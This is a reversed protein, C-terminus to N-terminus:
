RRKKKAGRSKSRIRRLLGRSRGSIGGRWHKGSLKGAPLGLAVNRAAVIGRGGIGRIGRNQLLVPEHPQLLCGVSAVVPAIEGDPCCHEFIGAASVASESIVTR